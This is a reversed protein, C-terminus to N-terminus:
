EGSETKNLFERLGEVVELDNEVLKGKVLIDGNDRIEIIPDIKNRIHFGIVSTNKVSDENELSAYALNICDDIAKFSNQYLKTKKLKEMDSILNLIINNSNEM